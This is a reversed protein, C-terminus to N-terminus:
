FLHFDGRCGHDVWIGRADWGWNDDQICPTRSVNRRLTAGRVIPGDCHRWHGDNSECRLLEGEGAAADSARGGGASFEARCGVAVWVGSQDVDWNHGQLCPTNSLRRSLFVGGRPDIDCHRRRGHESECRITRMGGPSASDPQESEQLGADQTEVPNSACGALASLAVVASLRLGNGM